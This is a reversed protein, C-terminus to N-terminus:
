RHDDEWSYRKDALQPVHVLESGADIREMSLPSHPFDDTGEEEPAQEGQHRVCEHRTVEDRIRNEEEVTYNSGLTSTSRRRHHSGSPPPLPSSPSQPPGLSMLRPTVARGDPLVLRPISPQHHPLQVNEPLPGLCIIRAPDIPTRQFTPSPPIISGGVPSIPSVNSSSSRSLSQAEFNSPRSRLSRPSIPSQASHTSYTASPDSSTGPFHPSPFPPAVTMPSPLDFHRNTWEVHHPTMPSPLSNPLSNSNAYTPSSAPSPEDSPRYHAVPSVDHGTKETPPPAYTPVPGQLQRDLKRRAREYASLGNTSETGLETVQDTGENCDLEVPELPVPLEYVEHSADAAVEVPQANSGHVEHVAPKRSKKRRIIISLMRKVPSRPLDSDVSDSDEKVEEM